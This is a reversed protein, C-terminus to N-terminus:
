KSEELRDIFEVFYKAFLAFIEPAKQLYDYVKDLDIKIYEHVLLNRFKAMNVNEEALKKDIIGTNGLQIIVESYEKPNIQFSEALIHNGIDTVIEVGLILNRITSDSIKFDRLFEEKSSKRCNNLKDIVEKILNLRSEIEIKSFATM